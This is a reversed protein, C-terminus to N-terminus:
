KFELDNILKEILEKDGLEQYDPRKKFKMSYMRELYMSFSSGEINRELYADKLWHFNEKKRKYSMSHHIITWPTYVATQSFISKKPYGYLNLYKEINNLNISDQILSNEIFNKYEESDIGHTLIIQSSEGKRLSQDVEFIHELFGEKKETTDLEEINHSENFNVNIILCLILISIKM